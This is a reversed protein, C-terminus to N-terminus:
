QGLTVNGLPARLTIAKNYVGTASYAAPQILLTSGSPVNPSNIATTFERYPQLFTGTQTGTHTHDVFYWNSEPYLSSMTLQDLFSLHTRQGIRNQWSQNPPLVTISQSDSPCDCTFGPPCAISFACEDYHMVSDFDYTMSDSLGYAQKPYVGASPNLTFQNQYNQQINTTNIAVYEDRDVRTHEHWLGLAHGLEHAIIFRKNWNFINVVQQGGQMGIASSNQDSNRIHLYNPHGSRPIFDVNAVSEWEAMAALMSDRNAPIVNANFEYPVIGGTWLNTAYTGEPPAAIPVLIDGEIIKYGEPIDKDDPPYLSIEQAYLPLEVSQILILLIFLMIASIFTQTRM